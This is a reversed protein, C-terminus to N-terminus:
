RLRPAKSAIAGRTGERKSGARLASPRSAPRAGAISSLRLSSGSISPVVPTSAGAAPGTSSPERAPCRALGIPDIPEDSSLESGDGEDKSGSGPVHDTHGAALMAGEASDRSVDNGESCGANRALLIGPLGDTPKEVGAGLSAANM